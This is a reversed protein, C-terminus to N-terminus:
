WGRYRPAEIGNMRLYLIIQGRHHTAHDRMLYFINQRTMKIGRFEFTEQLVQNDTTEILRGVHNLAEKLVVIVEAKSMAEPKINKFFDPSNGTIHSTLFSLNGTIHNLQEQFSMSGDAPKFDYKDEPMAEAVELLYASARQWVDSYEETFYSQAMVTNNILFALIVILAKKSFKM